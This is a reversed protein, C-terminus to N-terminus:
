QTTTTTAAAGTDFSQPTRSVMDDLQGAADLVMEGSPLAIYRAGTADAVQSPHPIPFSGPYVCVTVTANPALEALHRDPVSGQSEPRKDLWDQVAAPSGAVAVAVKTISDNGLASIGKQCVSTADATDIAAVSRANRSAAVTNATSGGCATLAAAIAGAVVLTKLM